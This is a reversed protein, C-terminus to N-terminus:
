FPCESFDLNSKWAKRYISMFLKYPSYHDQNTMRRKLTFYTLTKIACMQIIMMSIDFNFNKPTMGLENILYMPNRYHCYMESEPCWLSSRNNDYITLVLGELSYRKFSFYSLIRMVEPMHNFLVLFGSFVLLFCTGVAGFFTGNQFYIFLLYKLFYYKRLSYIVTRISLFASADNSGPLRYLPDFNILQFDYAFFM